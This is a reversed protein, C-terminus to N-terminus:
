ARGNRTALSRLRERLSACEPGALEDVTWPVRYGWNSPGVTAPV